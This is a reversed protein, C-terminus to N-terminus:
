VVEKDLFGANCEITYVSQIQLVFVTSDPHYVVYIFNIIM